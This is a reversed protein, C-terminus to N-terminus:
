KAISAPSLPGACNTFINSEVTIRACTEPSSEATGGAGPISTAYFRGLFVSRPLARSARDHANRARAETPFVFLYHLNPLKLRDKYPKARAIQDYAIAKKRFSARRLDKRPWVPNFQEAELAFFYARGNRRIGFLGDAVLREERGQVRCPLRLPQPDTTRELIAGLPIFEHGAANVGIEISALADCIMMAHAFQKVPADQRARILNTVHMIERDHLLQWGKPTIEYILCCYLSNYGRYQSRPKAILGAACMRKLTRNMGQRSRHPLLGDLFSKRLYRYRALLDLVELVAPSVRYAM